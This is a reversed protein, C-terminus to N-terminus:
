KSVSSGWRSGHVVAPLAISSAAIAASQTCYCHTTEQTCTSVSRLAATSAARSSGHDWSDSTLSSNHQPLERTRVCTACDGGCVDGFLDHQWPEPVPPASAIPVSVIAASVIPASATPASTTPASTTPASATPPASMNPLEPPGAHPTTHSIDSSCHHSFKATLIHPQDVCHIAICSHDIHHQHSPPHSRSLDSLRVAHQQHM